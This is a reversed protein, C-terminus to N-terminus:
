SNQPTKHVNTHMHPIESIIIVTLTESDV